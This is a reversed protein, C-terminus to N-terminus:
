KWIQGRKPYIATLIMVGLHILHNNQFRERMSTVVDGKRPVAWIEM